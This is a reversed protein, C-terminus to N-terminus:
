SKFFSNHRKFKQENMFIFLSFKHIKKVTNKLM